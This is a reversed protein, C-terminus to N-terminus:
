TDYMYMNTKDMVSGISKQNNNILIAYKYITYMTQLTVYTNCPGPM